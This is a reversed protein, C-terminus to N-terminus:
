PQFVAPVPESFKVLIGTTPVLRLTDLEDRSARAAHITKDTQHFYVVWDLSPSIRLAELEKLDSRSFPLIHISQPTPEITLHYPVAASILQSVMLAEAPTLLPVDVLAVNSFGDLLATLTSLGSDLGTGAGILVSETLMEAVLEPGTDCKGDDNLSSTATVEIVNDTQHFEVPLGVVSEFVRESAPVSEIQVIHNNLTTTVTWFADHGPWGLMVAYDLSAPMERGDFDDLNYRTRWSTARHFRRIGSNSGKDAIAFPWELLKPESLPIKTLQRLDDISLANLQDESVFTVEYGDRILQVAASLLRPHADEASRYSWGVNVRNGWSIVRDRVSELPGDTTLYLASSPEIEVVADIGMYSACVGDSGEGLLSFSVIFDNGALDELTLPIELSRTYEGALLMIEGRRNNNVSIRMIGNVEQSVQYTADIKFYGSIPGADVPLGFVVSQYAPLGSLIIPKTINNRYIQAIHANANETDPISTEFILQQGSVIESFQRSTDQWFSEYPLLFTAGTLIFALLGIGILRM